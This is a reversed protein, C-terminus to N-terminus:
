TGTGDRPGQNAPELTSFGDYAADNFTKAQKADKYKAELDNIATKKKRCEEKKHGTRGCFGCKGGKKEKGKGKGKTGTGKGKTQAKLAIATSNAAATRIQEEILIQNKVTQIKPISSQSLIISRLTSYSDPLATVIAIAIVGEDLRIGNTTLICWREVLSNIQTELPEEDSLKTQFIAILQPVVIHLGTEQYRDVLSNWAEKPSEIAIVATYPEPELTLLIQTLADLERKKWDKHATADSQAPITETGDVIGWLERNRLILKLQSSWIQFNSGDNKLCNIDDSPRGSM